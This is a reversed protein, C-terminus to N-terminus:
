AHSADLTKSPRSLWALLGTVALSPLASGWSPTYLASL